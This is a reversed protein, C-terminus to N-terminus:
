KVHTTKNKIKRKLLDLESFNIVLVFKKEIKDECNHCLIINDNNAGPFVTCCYNFSM